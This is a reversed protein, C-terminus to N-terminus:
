KVIAQIPEKPNDTGTKIKLIIDLSKSACTQGECSLPQQPSTNQIIEFPMTSTSARSKFIIQKQLLFVAIPISVFLFLVFILGILNKKNQFFLTLDNM